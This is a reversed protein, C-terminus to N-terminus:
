KNGAVMSEKFVRAWDRIVGFFAEPGVIMELIVRFTKGVMQGLCVVSVWNSRVFGSPV